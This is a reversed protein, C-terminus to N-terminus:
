LARGLNVGVGKLAETRIAIKRGRENRLELSDAGIIQGSPLFVYTSVDDKVPSISAPLAYSAVPKASKWFQFTRNSYTV